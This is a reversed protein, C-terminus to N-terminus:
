QARRCPNSVVSWAASSSCPLPADRQQGLRDGVDARDEEQSAASGRDALAPVADAVPPLHADEGTGGHEEEQGADDHAPDALGRDLPQGPHHPEKGHGADGPSDPERRAFAYPLM